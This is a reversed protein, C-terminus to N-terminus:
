GRSEGSERLIAEMKRKLDSLDQEVVAWVEDLDVSFYDHVLIIRMAIIRAWPIEPHAKRLEESLQRAAEGIIQLHHVVWNQILEDSEFKQRGRAVYKEIRAVAELIDGLRDVDRKM